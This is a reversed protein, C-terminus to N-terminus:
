SHTQIQPPPNTDSATAYLHLDTLTRLQTEAPQPSRGALTLLVDTEKVAKHIAQPTVGFLEAITALTTGFRHRLVSSLVRDELSLVSKRGGGPAKTRQHGRQRHLAAERQAHRTVALKDILEHWAATPMGTFAPQFLWTHDAQVTAPAQPPEPAPTPQPYLTYNWEGHWDHRHLPLAAMTADDIRVGIPYSAPDLEADVRLGTSTRTAAISNVAVEHSTLPRGRWNMSIHSFLRHEIANWKSTGPPFHCVTVALGTAAAFRALETKFARTRYSNSGGADAPVLLRTAQRYATRGHCAWWRELTAVAFAATDHDCGVSVWGTNAAMDYVGYPIAKGLATDPFDHTNVQVPRGVRDWERGGNKFQGILEKKKTDVSVVPQGAALHERAQENLYRFQADRDPHQKGELTKANGQLSFGQDRLLDAVTDASCRHGGATLEVALARTSKATWRLPSEPDGRADPEVLALLAPVLGSDADALRKRGAGEVRIRGRPLEGADAADVGRSIMAVSVGAARAVVRIGGRGLMRAEAGLLLRRQRENLHPLVFALKEALAEELGEWARM